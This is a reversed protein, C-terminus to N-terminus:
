PSTVPFPRRVTPRAPANRLRSEGDSPTKRCTAPPKLHVARFRCSSLGRHAQVAGVIRLVDEGLDNAALGGAVFEVFVVVHEGEEVDERLGEAM